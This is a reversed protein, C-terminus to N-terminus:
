RLGQSLVGWNKALLHPFPCCHLGSVYFVSPLRNSFFSIVVFGCCQISDTSSSSSSSASPHLTSPRSPLGAPSTTGDVKGGERLGMEWMTWLASPSPAPSRLTPNFRKVTHLLHLHRHRSPSITLCIASVSEYWLEFVVASFFLIFCLLLLLLLWRRSCIRRWTTARTRSRQDITMM